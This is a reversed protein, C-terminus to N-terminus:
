PEACYRYASPVHKLFYVFFKGCNTVKGMTKRSCSGRVWNFCFDVDISVDIETPHAM